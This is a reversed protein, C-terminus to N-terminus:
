TSWSGSLNPRRNITKAAVTGVGRRINVGTTDCISRESNESRIIIVVVGDLMTNLTFEDVTMRFCAKLLHNSPLVISINDSGDGRVCVIKTEMGRKFSPGVASNMSTDSPCYTIHSGRGRRITLRDYEVGKLMEGLCVCHLELVLNICVWYEKEVM